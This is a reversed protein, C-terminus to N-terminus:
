YTSCLISFKTLMLLHTWQWNVPLSYSLKYYSNSMHFVDTAKLKIKITSNSFYFILALNSSVKQDVSFDYKFCKKAFRKAWIEEKM